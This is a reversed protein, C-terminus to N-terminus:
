RVGANWEEREKRLDAVKAKAADRQKDVRKMDSSEIPLGPTSQKKKAHIKRYSEYQEDLLRLRARESDIADDIRARQGDLQQKAELSLAAGREKRDSYKALQDRLAGLRAIATAPQKKAMVLGAVEDLICDLAVPVGQELATRQGTSIWEDSIVDVTVSTTAAAGVPLWDAAIRLPYPQGAPWSPIFYYHDANRGELTSLRARVTVNTLPTDVANTLEIFERELSSKAAASAIPRDVVQGKAVKRLLPTITTFANRCKKDYDLQWDAIQQNRTLDYYRAIIGELDDDAIPGLKAMQAQLSPAIRARSSILFARVDAWAAKLKPDCDFSGDKSEELASLEVLWEAPQKRGPTLENLMSIYPAFRHLQDRLQVDDAPTAARSLAPLLLASAAALIGGRLTVRNFM